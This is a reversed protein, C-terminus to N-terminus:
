ICPQRDAAIAGVALFMQGGDLQSYWAQTCAWAPQHPENWACSRYAFVIPLLCSVALKHAGGMHKFTAPLVLEHRVQVVQPLSMSSSPSLM